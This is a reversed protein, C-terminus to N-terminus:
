RRRLVEIAAATQEPTLITPLAAEIRRLTTEDESTLPTCKRVQVGCMMILRSIVFPTHQEELYVVLRHVRGPTDSGEITTPGDPRKLVM